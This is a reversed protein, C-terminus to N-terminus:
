HGAQCSVDLKLSLLNVNSCLDTPRRSVQMTVSRLGQWRIHILPGMANSFLFPAHKVELYFKVHHIIYVYVNCIQAVGVCWAFWYQMKLKVMSVINWNIEFGFYLLETLSFTTSIDAYPHIKQRQGFKISYFNWKKKCIGVLRRVSLREANNVVQVPADIAWRPIVM